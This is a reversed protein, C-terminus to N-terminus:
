QPPRSSLEFYRWPIGTSYFRQPHLAFSQLHVSLLSQNIYDPVWQLNWTSHGKSCFNKVTIIVRNKEWCRGTHQAQTFVTSMRAGEEPSIYVHLTNMSLPHMTWFNWCACERFGCITKKRNWWRMIGMVSARNTLFPLDRIIGTTCPSQTDGAKSIRQIADCIHVPGPTVSGWLFSSGNWMTWGEWSLIEHPIVINGATSNQPGINLKNQVSM